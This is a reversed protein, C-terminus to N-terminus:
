NEHATNNEHRFVIETKSWIDHWARRKPDFCIWFFGLISIGAGLAAGFRLGACGWTIPKGDSQQVKLRWALMGLTQGGHTWFWGYFLFAVLLLYLQYYINGPPISKGGTIPLVLYTAIFFLAILLLFDYLMAALRRILGPRRPIEQILNESM